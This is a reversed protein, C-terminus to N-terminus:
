HFMPRSKKTPPLSEEELNNESQEAEAAEVILRRARQLDGSRYAAKAELILELTRGTYHHEM